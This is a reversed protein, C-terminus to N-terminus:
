AYIGYIWPDGDRCFKQIGSVRNDSNCDGNEAPAAVIYTYSSKWLSNIAGAVVVNTTVQDAKTQTFQASNNRWNAFLGGNAYDWFHNGAADAKGNLVNNITNAFSNRVPGQINALYAGINAM